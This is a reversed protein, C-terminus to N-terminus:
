FLAPRNPGGLRLGAPLDIIDPAKCFPCCSCPTPALCQRCSRAARRAAPLQSAPGAGAGHGSLITEKGNGSARALVAVDLGDLIESNDGSLAYESFSPLRIKMRRFKCRTMHATSTKDWSLMFVSLLIVNAASSAALAEAIVTVLAEARM